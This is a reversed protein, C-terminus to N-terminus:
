SSQAIKAIARIAMVALIFHWWRFEYSINKTRKEHRALNLDRAALEGNIANIEDLSLDGRKKIESLESDTLLAIPQNIPNKSSM